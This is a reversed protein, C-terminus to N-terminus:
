VVSKRDTTLLLPPEAVLAAGAATRDTILGATKTVPWHSKLLLLRAAVTPVSKCYWSAVIWDSVVKPVVVPKPRGSMLPWGAVTRCKVGLMKCHPPYIM